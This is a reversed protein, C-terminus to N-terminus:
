LFSFGIESYVKPFSFRRVIKRSYKKEEPFEVGLAIEAGKGGEKDVKGRKESEKSEEIKGRMDQSRGSADATIYLLYIM